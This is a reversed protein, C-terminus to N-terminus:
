LQENSLFKLISLKLLMVMQHTLLVAVQFILVQKEPYILWLMLHNEVQKLVCRLFDM